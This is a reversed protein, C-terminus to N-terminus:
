VDNVVLIFKPNNQVYEKCYLALRHESEVQDAIGALGNGKLYTWFKLIDIVRGCQFSKDGVDLDGSYSAREKHFLYDAHASNAPLLIDKKQVLFLSAQLPVVLGKHPDITISDV